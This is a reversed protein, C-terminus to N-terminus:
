IMINNKYKITNLAQYDLYSNQYVLKMTKKYGLDNVDKGEPLFIVKVKKFPLLKFALDIAKDKADPDLLIVFKEVPSKIMENLQYRSISKGMTAIAKEGLTLANFAGECIFIQSYIQLADHNYIIFEKGLGTIDKSPNNYRAGTGLVNRANYYKLRGEYYYPIILYGAKDGSDCYGIGKKSAYEISFGRKKVYNRISRAIQSNGFTINKYSDPLYVPISKVLEIKSEKFTLENFDGSNLLKIVESYTELGEVDMILQIPSPHEGCRFCNCRNLSLNVGMKDERHCYPCIPIRMWGNRYNFAGLRKVLYTYIKSKFNTTIKM